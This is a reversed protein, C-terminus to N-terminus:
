TNGSGPLCVYSEFYHLSELFNTTAPNKEMSRQDRSRSHGDPPDTLTIIKKKENGQTQIQPRLVTLFCPQESM